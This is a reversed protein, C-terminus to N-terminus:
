KDPQNNRIYIKLIRRFMTKLYQDFIIKQIKIKFYFKLINNIQNVKLKIIRTYKITVIMPYLKYEFAYSFQNKKKDKNDLSNSTRKM